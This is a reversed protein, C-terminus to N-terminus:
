VWPYFFLSLLQLFVVYNVEKPHSSLSVLPAHLVAPLLEIRGALGHRGLCGSVDVMKSAVQDFTHQDASFLSPFKPVEAASTSSCTWNPEPPIGIDLNALPLPCGSLSQADPVTASTTINTINFFIDEFVLPPPCNMDRVNYEINLSHRSPVANKLTKTYNIALFISPLPAWTKHLPQADWAIKGNDIADRGTDSDLRYLWWTIEPRCQWVKDFNHIAFVTPFPYLPRYITNNRPFVADVGLPVTSTLALGVM